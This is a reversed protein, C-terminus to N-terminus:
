RWELRTHQVGSLVGVFELLSEETEERCETLIADLESDLHEKVVTDLHSLVEEHLSYPSSFISGASNALMETGEASISFGFVTPFPISLILSDGQLFVRQKETTLDVGTRVVVPILLDYYMRDEVGMWREFGSGETFLFVARVFLTDQRVTWRCIDALGVSAVQIINVSVDDYSTYQSAEVDETTASWVLVWALLGTM